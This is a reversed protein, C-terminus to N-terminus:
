GRARPAGRSINTRSCSRSRRCWAPSSSSVARITSRRPRTKRSPGALYFGAFVAVVLGVGLGVACFLFEALTGALWAITVAPFIVAAQWFAFEVAAGLVGQWGLGCACWVAMLAMTPAAVFLLAASTLKAALLRPPRFRGRIWFSKTGRLGDELILTAALLCAMVFEGVVLLRTWIMMTTSWATVEAPGNGHADLSVLRFAVTTSVVLAVWAGV